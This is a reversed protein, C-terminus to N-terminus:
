SCHSALFSSSIGELSCWQPLGRLTSQRTLPAQSDNLRFLHPFLPEPSKLLLFCLVNTISGHSDTSSSQLFVMSPNELVDSQQAQSEPQLQGQVGRQKHLRGEGLFSGSPIIYRATQSCLYVFPLCLRLDHLSSTIVDCIELPYDPQLQSCRCPPPLCKSPNWCEGKLM